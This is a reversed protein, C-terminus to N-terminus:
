RYHIKAFSDTPINRAEKALKLGVLKNRNWENKFISLPPSTEGVLYSIEITLAPRRYTTIFWDTFGGGTAEKEPKALKYGTLKAIKRAIWYDRFLYRGNKYNWFLERGASHYSVAIAPNIEGIFNTLAQVEAAELPEKGKYSKYYPTLPDKPLQDWDAPYQRNLDIGNGNAKWRKFNQCGDNMEQLHIQHKVPFTALQHQQIIVGDPNLMPVFWIATENLIATSQSSVSEKKEYADAYTELMKMLLMSTLWERGHHAGVLLITKKGQGLKIGWIERGFESKGISTVTLVNSYKNELALVDNTLNNYSYPKTTEVIAAAAHKNCVFCCVLLLALYKGM